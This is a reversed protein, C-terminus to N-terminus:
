RIFCCSPRGARKATDNRRIAGRVRVGWPEMRGSRCTRGWRGRGSSRRSRRRLWGRGERYAPTAAEATTLALPAREQSIANQMHTARPGGRARRSACSTTRHAHGGVRRSRRVPHPDPPTRSAKPKALLGQRPGGRPLAGARRRGPASKGPLHRKTDKLQKTSDATDHAPQALYARRTRTM